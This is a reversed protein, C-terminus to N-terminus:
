DHSRAAYKVSCGYPKTRTIPPAENKLLADLVEGVYNRDGKKRFGGNDLAGGYVLTGKNIVFLHPTTKAGYLRGVRGDNDMLIEYPIGKDKRYKENKDATQFHTSDIALWVVDQEGYQKAMEIMTPAAFVSAPCNQCIWELVVIKDSYGALRREEGRTTKLAFDPAPKGLQAKAGSRGQDDAVTLATPILLLAMLVWCVPCCRMQM